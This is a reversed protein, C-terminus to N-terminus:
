VNSIPSYVIITIIIIIHSIWNLKADIIVGLYKITNTEDIKTNDIFLEIDGLCKRRGRHFVMYFVKSINLTLKNSKLWESILGLETNM